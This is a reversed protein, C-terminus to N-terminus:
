TFRATKRIDPITYAGKKGRPYTILTTKTKNYLVGGQSSYVTNGSAVNIAILSDCYGFSADGIVTVGNGITVSTLSACRDFVAGGITKVSDPITISTLSTCSAFTGGEIETVSNGITVSTLNSCGRFAQGEIIKVSDPITIGTLTSCGTYSPAQFYFASDAIRTLDSGSLNLYVYKDPANNLITRVSQFIADSNDLVLTIQYATAPTNGPQASIYASFSATNIFVRRIEQHTSDIACVRTEEGGIAATAPTTVVWNGWQHIHAPQTVGGGNTGGNGGTGGGGSGGGKNGGSSGGGRSTSGNDCCVLTIGLVLAVALTTLLIIKNKM